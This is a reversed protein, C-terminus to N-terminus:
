PVSIGLFINGTNLLPDTAEIYGQIQGSYAAVKVNIKTNLVQKETTKQWADGDDKILCLKCVIMM